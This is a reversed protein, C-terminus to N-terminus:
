KLVIARRLKPKRAVLLVGQVILEESSLERFPTKLAPRISEVLDLDTKTYDVGLSVSERYPVLDGNGLLSTVFFTGEYGLEGILNKYYSTLKRNPMGSDSAMLRYVPESITLFTLPHLGAGSFVGYDSMDIKHISYGGPCLFKDLAVFVAKPDYIEEVVARSVIIDFEKNQELFWKIWADQDVGAISTLRDNNIQVGEDLLIVEDLRRKEDGTLRDRLTRYIEIERSPDRPTRYKDLCAVERAGAALFRLAVGVNDGFGLELIRAEELVEKSLGAYNLYDEFQTEIYGVSEKVSKTAHTAGYGAQVEGARYRRRVRWNNYVKYAVIAAKSRRARQKLAQVARTDQPWM